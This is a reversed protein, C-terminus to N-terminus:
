FGFYYPSVRTMILNDWNDLQFVYPDIFSRSCIEENDVNIFIYGKIIEEQIYLRSFSIDVLCNENCSKLDLIMKQFKLRYSTMDKESVETEKIDKSTTDVKDFNVLPIYIQETGNSKYEPITDLLFRSVTIDDEILNPCDKQMELYMSKVASKYVYDIFNDEVISNSVDYNQSSAINSLFCVFLIIKIKKIMRNNSEV